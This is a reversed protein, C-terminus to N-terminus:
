SSKLIETPFTGFPQHVGTRREKAVVKRSFTECRQRVEALFVYTDRHPYLAFSRTGRPMFSNLPRWPGFRPSGALEQNDHLTVLIRGVQKPHWIYDHYWKDLYECLGVSTIESHVDMKMLCDIVLMMCLPDAWHAPRPHRVSRTGVAADQWRDTANQSFLREASNM